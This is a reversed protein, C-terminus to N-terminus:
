PEWPMPQAGLGVRERFARHLRRAVPGPVGSGVDKGDIRVVPLLERISSTIFVEDAAQLEDLTVRREETSLGLAGAVALVERRTIGALVGEDLSPTVLHHGRVFFVNSSAGETVRGDPEVLLAEAAGRAKADRVALLNALYNSIKAASAATGDHPRRTTVTALAIGSAYVARPPAELPEVIIVRLPASALAPDLGLPGSGRTLVVRVYSEPNGAAEVAARVEGALVGETVPMPILVSDASRHLRAVHEDLAFPEGSYTRLAEFVADGYLFGRDYVSVKADAKAFLVGDM